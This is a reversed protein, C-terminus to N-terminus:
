TRLQNRIGNICIPSNVCYTKRQSIWGHQQLTLIGRKQPQIINWPRHMHRANEKTMWGDTSMFAEMDQSSYSINCPIHSHMYRKSNTNENEPGWIQVNLSLVKSPKLFLCLRVVNESFLMLFEFYSSWVCIFLSHSFFCLCNWSFCIFHADIAKVQRAIVGGETLLM